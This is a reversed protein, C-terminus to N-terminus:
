ERRTAERGRASELTRDEEGESREESRKEGGAGKKQRETGESQEKREERKRQRATQVNKIRRQRAAYIMLFFSPDLRGVGTSTSTVHSRPWLGFEDQHMERQLFMEALVAVPFSLALLATEDRLGSWLVAMWSPLMVVAVTM